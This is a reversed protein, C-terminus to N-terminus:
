ESGMDKIDPIESQAEELAEEAAEEVQETVTGMTDSTADTVEETVEEVKEMTAEDEAAFTNISFLAIALLVFSKTFNPLVTKLTLM